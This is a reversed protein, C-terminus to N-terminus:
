AIAEIRVPQLQQEPMPRILEGKGTEVVYFERSTFDINYIGFLAAVQSLDDALLLTDRDSEKVMECLDVEQCPGSNDLDLPSQEYDVFHNRLRKLVSEEIPRAKSGECRLDIVRGHHFGTGVSIQSCDLTRAITITPTHTM